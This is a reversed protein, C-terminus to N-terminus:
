PFNYISTRCLTLAPGERPLVLLGSHTWGGRSVPQCSLAWSDDLARLRGRVDSGPNYVCGCLLTSPSSIAKTNGGEQPQLTQISCLSSPEEQCASTNTVLSVPQGATGLAPGLWPCFDWLHLQPCLFIRSREEGPRGEAVSMREASGQTQWSPDNQFLTGCGLSM